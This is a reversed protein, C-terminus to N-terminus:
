SGAAEAELLQAAMAQLALNKSEGSAAALEPAAAKARRMIELTTTM